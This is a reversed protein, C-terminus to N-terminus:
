PATNTVDGERPPFDRSLGARGKYVYPTVGRALSILFVTRFGAKAPTSPGDERLDRVRM